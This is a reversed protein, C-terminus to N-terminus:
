SVAADWFGQAGRMPIIPECPRPDLMPWAFNSHDDRESDNVLGGFEGAVEWSRKPEGILATGVLSSLPLRLPNDLWNELLPLAESKLGTSWDYLRMRVILDDIESVKVKRAGAHIAIRQSVISKPAAWGRFEYPKVGAIILTAWPQWVTLAKM